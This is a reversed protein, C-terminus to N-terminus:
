VGSELSNKLREKLLQLGKRHNKLKRERERADAESLFNEYYVIRWSGNLRKTSKNQGSNHAKLREEMDGTFGVYIDKSPLQQILYVFWM